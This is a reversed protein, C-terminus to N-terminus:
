PLVSKNLAYRAAPAARAPALPHGTIYYACTLPMKRMLKPHDERPAPPAERVEPRGALPPALPERPLRPRDRGPPLPDRGDPGVVRVPPGDAARAHGPRAERPDPGAGGVLRALVGDRARPGRPAEDADVHRGPLHRVRRGEGLEAVQGPALPEPLPHEGLEDGDRAPAADDRAPAGDDVGGEGPGGGRRPAPPARAVRPGALRPPAVVPVEPVLRVHADVRPRAERARRPDGGRAHRVHGHRRRRRAGVVPGAVGVRAVRAYPLAGLDPAVGGGRPHPPADRPAARPDRPAVM